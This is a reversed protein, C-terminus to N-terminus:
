IFVKNPNSEKFNVWIYTGSNDSKAFWRMGWCKGYLEELTEAQEIVQNNIYVMGTLHKRDVGQQSELPFFWDSRIVNAFPNFSGFYNNPLHRMWVDGIQHKWGKLEEAGTITVQQEAAAQYVIPNNEEGGRPPDIRERYIGGFVTIVDGPYAVNAAAQITRFPNNKTGDNEDNGRISVYFEDALSLFPQFITILFFIFVINKLKM